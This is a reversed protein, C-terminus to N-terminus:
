AGPSPDSIQGFFTCYAPKLEQLSFRSSSKVIAQLRAWRSQLVDHSSHFIGKRGSNGESYSKIVTRMLQTARLQAEHSVGITDVKVYAQLKQYLDFDKVVAWRSELVFELSSMAESIFIAVQM